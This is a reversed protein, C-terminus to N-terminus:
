LNCESTLGVDPVTDQRAVGQQRLQAARAQMAEPSLTQGAQHLVWDVEYAYERPAGPVAGASIWHNFSIAMPKVPVNRGTHEGMLRGNVFHRTRTAEVQVTLLQWGDHSGPVISAQNFSQWPDIRVTQWSVGYLRTGPEGWGGHPLYEFDVESFDPDYDHRLPGALFFSQIIPDRSGPTDRFRVRATTTGILFKRAACLQALTTHAPTGDTSLKLRVVGGDLALQGPSFRSGALGPHGTGDRLVWGSARLADLDKQSFDEFFEGAAMAPAAMLALLAITAKM